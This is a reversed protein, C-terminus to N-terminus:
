EWLCHRLLLFVPVLIFDVRFSVPLAARRVARDFLPDFGPLWVLMGGRALCFGYASFKLTTPSQGAFEPITTTRVVNHGFDV